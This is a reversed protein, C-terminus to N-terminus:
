FRIKILDLPSFAAAGLGGSIFSATYKVSLKDGQGGKGGILKKIPEYMGM